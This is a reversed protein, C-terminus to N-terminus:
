SVVISIGSTDPDTFMNSGSSNKFNVAYHTYEVDSPLSYTGGNLSMWGPDATRTWTEGDTTWLTVAPIFGECEITIATAGEPLAIPAYDTMEGTLTGSVECKLKPANLSSLAAFRSLNNAHVTGYGISPYMTIAMRTVIVYDTPESTGAYVDALYESVEEDTWVFNDIVFDYITGKWYQKKSGDQNQHAGIILTQPISVWGISKDNASGNAVEGNYLTKVAALNSGAKHTVVVKVRSYTNKPINTLSNQENYASFRYMDHNANISFMYGPYPDVENMCQFIASGNNVQAQPTAEFAITFDIDNVALQVGTDVFDSTGNFVTEQPLSYLRMNSPEDPVDAYGDVVFTTTKGSYNVTIINDGEVITGFLTYGTVAESTGDSYHATVVIGTLENVNTGALVNGGTYTASISTLTKVTEGGEDTAPPVTTGNFVIFTPVIRGTTNEYITNIHKKGLMTETSGGGDLNYAFKLGHKVCINQAEAITWGDSNHFSRGECTIIAYDGNGWQGIIQRQANQTYHTVSNWETEPVKGYDVIIPIFGCVASVIGNQVLKSADADYEAYSLNGNADITLPKCKSHTATPANQIVVGNQIVIGDPKRTSTDFVGSNIALIWGDNVAMDYTSKNGAGAGNPAYVFPYQYSGDLKQKYIRIVTYYAGTDADYAYDVYTNDLFIDIPTKGSQDVNGGSGSGGVETVGINKRAQAKQEETLNQEVCQVSVGMLYGIADTYEEEIVESNRIGGQVYIGKHVATSWSYEYTGEESICNFTLRFELAAANQTANRSILWSCIVVDNDAPSFQLDDIIYVGKTSGNQYHVESLNCISMDHGEIYRPLDFTFRESNHDFQMVTVKKSSENKIARTIADISFHSDTDYVSHLHAM